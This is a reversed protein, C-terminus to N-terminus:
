VTNGRTEDFFARVANAVPRPAQLHVMHGAGPIQVVRLDPVAAELAATDTAAFPSHEPHVSLVPCRIRALLQRHHAHRYPIAGRIRHRLDHAWTVGGEVPVTDRAALRLASAPTLFPMAARLREAAEEVSSLVRPRVERRSGDLFAVMRDAADEAGDPLGLGDVSVVASVAEPRAGAYLTVITGGMSHGVLRVPGGLEAVLADLDAVYDPFHYTTGPDVRMSRGHGRQDLALVWGDLGAAVEEWSGAHDLWGHLLVTPSGVPEGWALGTFRRGRLIWEQERAVREASPGPAGVDLRM